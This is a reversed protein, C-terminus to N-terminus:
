QIDSFHLIERSPPALKDMIQRFIDLDQKADAPTTKLPEKGIIANHLAELELTYPDKYSPRLVTEKFGGQGDDEQITVKIPLGKIYPTDYTIQVRKTDGFIEIGADFMPVNDIGVEYMVNFGQPYQFLAHMFDGTPTRGAALCQLPPGGFLERMLSLDHSSLGALLRYSKVNVPDSARHEGLAEQAMRKGQALLDSVKDEPVDKVKIPFTGSQDVFFRNHGIIDRVRAYHITKMGHLIDSLPKVAFAYRRMYGVMIVVGNRKEAAIVADADSETLAMPKEIFVHKGADAAEVAMSAHYEDSNLIMVLDVDDQNILQRHDTYTKAINFKAACHSLATASVDCLATVRYLHSCLQLTPLHVTQAVEGTGIIGVRLVSTTVNNKM